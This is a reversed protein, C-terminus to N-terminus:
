IYILLYRQDILMYPKQIPDVKDIRIGIIHLLSNLCKVAERRNEQAEDDLRETVEISKVIFKGPIDPSQTDLIITLSKIM